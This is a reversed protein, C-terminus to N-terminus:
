DKKPFHNRNSAFHKWSLYTGVLNPNIKRIQIRRHQRGNKVERRTCYLPTPIYKIANPMKRSCRLSKTTTLMVDTFFVRNCVKEVTEIIRKEVDGISM